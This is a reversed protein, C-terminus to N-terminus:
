KEEFVVNLLWEDDNGVEKRIVAVQEFGVHKPIVWLKIREDWVLEIKREM